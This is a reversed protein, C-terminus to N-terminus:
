RPVGASRRWELQMRVRGELTDLHENFGNSPTFGLAGQVRHFLGHLM